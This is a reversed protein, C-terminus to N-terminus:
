EAALQELAPARSPAASAEGGLAEVLDAVFRACEGTMIAFDADFQEAANEADQQSQEKLMDVFSLRKIQLNECLVFSLRANWTMALRSVQKGGSIHNRIESTEM